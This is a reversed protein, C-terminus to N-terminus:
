IYVFTIYTGKWRPRVVASLLRGEEDTVLLNRNIISWTEKVNNQVPTKREICM